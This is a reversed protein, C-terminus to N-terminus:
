KKRAHMASMLTHHFQQGLMEDSFLSGSIGNMQENTLMLPTKLCQILADTHEPKGVSIRAYGKLAKNGYHHIMIGMQSLREELCDPNQLAACASVEAAVSVNYPQEFVEIYAEDLVVLVPASLIKLLDEDSIISGDPNNTSTLFICKPKELKVVEVVCSVDLSFDSLRPVKIVLAGNVAEDFEYMTFTPPCDFIKDGLHLVCRMILDSLEDARCGALIYDSELGPIHM